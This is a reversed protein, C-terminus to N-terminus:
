RGPQRNTRCCSRSQRPRWRLPSAASRTNGCPWPLPWGAGAGGPSHTRPSSNVAPSSRVWVLIPAGLRAGTGSRPPDCIVMRQSEKWFVVLHCRPSSRREALTHRRSGLWRWSSRTPTGARLCRDGAPLSPLWRHPHRQLDRRQHSVSDGTHRHEHPIGTSPKVRTSRRSQPPACGM